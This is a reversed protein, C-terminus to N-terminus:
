IIWKCCYYLVRMMEDPTVDTPRDLQIHQQQKTKQKKKFKWVSSVPLTKLQLTKIQLM